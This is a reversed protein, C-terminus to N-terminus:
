IRKTEGFNFLLSLFTAGTCKEMGKGKRERREERPPFPKVKREVGREGYRVFLCMKPAPAFVARNYFGPRLPRKGRRKIETM